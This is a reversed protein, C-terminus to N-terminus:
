LGISTLIVLRADFSFNLPLWQNWIVILYEKYTKEFDYLFCEFVAFKENELDDQSTSDASDKQLNNKRLFM